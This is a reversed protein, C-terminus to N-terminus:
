KKPTEEATAVEPKNLGIILDGLQKTRKGPVRKRMAPWFERVINYGADMGMGVAFDSFITGADRNSIYLNAIGASGLNGLIYAANWTQRGTDSRTM